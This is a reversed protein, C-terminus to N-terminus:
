RGLYRGRECYNTYWGDQPVYASAPNYFHGRHGSIRRYAMLKRGWVRQLKSFDFAKVIDEREQLSLPQYVSDQLIFEVLRDCESIWGQLKRTCNDKFWKREDRLIIANSRLQINIMAGYVVVAYSRIM